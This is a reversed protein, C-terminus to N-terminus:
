KCSSVTTSLVPGNDSCKGKASNAKNKSKWYNYAKLYDMNGNNLVGATSYIGEKDITANYKINDNTWSDGGGYPYIGDSTIVFRFLDIGM